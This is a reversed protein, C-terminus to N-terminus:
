TANRNLMTYFKLQEEPNLLTLFQRLLPTAKLFMIWAKNDGKEAIGTKREYEEFTNPPMLQLALRGIKDVTPIVVTPTKLVTMLDDFGVVPTYMGFDKSLRMLQLQTFNAIWALTPDDDDDLELKGIAKALEAAGIFLMLEFATRRIAAQSEVPLERYSGAVARWDNIAAGLKGFFSEGVAFEKYSQGLQNWAKRYYGETEEQLEYDYKRSGFRARYSTYLYKRFMLALRGYWRYQLAARDFKNYNGHLQKSLAHIDSRTRNLVEQPVDEFELGQETIKARDWLSKGDVMRAKLLAIMGTSQIQFEPGSQTFFLANEMLKSGISSNLRKGELNIFEGQIADFYTVLQTIKSRKRIDNQGLDALVDKLSVAFEKQASLYDKFKFYQGGVALSINNFNGTAANAVAGTFNWAISHLSALALTKNIGKSVSYSRGLMKFSSDHLEDDQYITANIFDLLRKNFNVGSKKELYQKVRGNYEPVGDKNLRAQRALIKMESDGVLLTKLANISPELESFSKYNRTSEDYALVTSFLDTIVNDPDLRKTFHMKVDYVEQGDLYARRRSNGDEDLYQEMEMSKLLWRFFNGLWTGEKNKWVDTKFEEFKSGMREKFSEAKRIQPIEHLKLRKDKSVRNQADDYMQLLSKYYNDMVLTSDTYTGKLSELQNLLELVRDANEAGIVESLEKRQLNKPTGNLMNFSTFGFKKAENFFLNFDAARLDERQQTKMRKRIETRYSKGDFPSVLFTDGPEAEILEGNEDRALLVMEGIYKQHFKDADENDPNAAEYLERLKYNNKLTQTANKYHLENLMKATIAAVEDRSSITASLWTDLTNTDQDAFGLQAQLIEKTLPISEGKRIITANSPVNQWLLEAALTRYANNFETTVANINARIQTLADSGTKSVKNKSLSTTLMKTLEPLGIAELLFNINAAQNVTILNGDELSNVLDIVKQANKRLTPDTKMAVKLAADNTLRDKIKGLTELVPDRQYDDKDGYHFQDTLQKLKNFDDYVHFYNRVTELESFLSNIEAKYEEDTRDGKGEKILRNIDAFLGKQGLFQDAVTQINTNAASLYNLLSRVITGQNVSKQSAEDQMEKIMNLQDNLGDNYATSFLGPKDRVLSKYLNARNKASELMDKFDKTKSVDKFESDFIEFREDLNKMQRVEDLKSHLTDAATFEYALKKLMVDNGLTAYNSVGLWSLFDRLWTFFEDIIGPREAKSAYETLVRTIAEEIIFDNAYDLGEVQQIVDQHNKIVEAMIQYYMTPNDKKVALIFPHLYEHLATKSNAHALNIEVTPVGNLMRFRGRYNESPKNTMVYPIGTKIRLQEAVRGIVDQEPNTIYDKFDKDVKFDYTTEAREAEDDLEEEKLIESSVNPNIIQNVPDLRKRFHESLPLVNVTVVTKGTATKTTSVIDQDTIAKYEKNIDEIANLQVERLSSYSSPEAIYFGKKGNSQYTSFQGTEGIKSFIGRHEEALKNKVSPANTSKDIYNINCKM